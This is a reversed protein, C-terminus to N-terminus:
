LHTSFFSIVEKEEDVEDDEDDSGHVSAAPTTIRSSSPSPPESLPRPYNFTRNYRGEAVESALEPYVATLAKIRAERYYQSCFLYLCRKDNFRADFLFIFFCINISVSIFEYILNFSKPRDRISLVSYIIHLVYETSHTFTRVITFITM